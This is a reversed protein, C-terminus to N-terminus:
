ATRGARANDIPNFVVATGVSDRDYVIAAYRVLTNTDVLHIYLLLVGSEITWHDAQAEAPNIVIM